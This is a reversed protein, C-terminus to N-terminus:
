GSTGFAALPWRSAKEQIGFCCKWSMPFACGREYNRVREHRPTFILVGREGDAQRMKESGCDASAFGGRRFPRSVRRFDGLSV